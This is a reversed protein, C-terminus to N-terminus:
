KQLVPIAQWSIDMRQLVKPTEISNRSRCRDNYYITMRRSTVDVRRLCSVRRRRPMRPMGMKKRQLLGVM